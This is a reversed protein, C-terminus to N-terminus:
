MKAFTINMFNQESKEGLMGDYDNGMNNGLMVVIKIAGYYKVWEPIIM